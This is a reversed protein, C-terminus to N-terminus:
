TWSTRRWERVGQLFFGFHNVSQVTLSIILIQYFNYYKPPVQRSCVYISIGPTSAFSCRTLILWHWPQWFPPSIKTSSSNSRPNLSTAIQVLPAECVNGNKPKQLSLQVKDIVVITVCANVGSISSGSALNWQHCTAVHASSEITVKFRQHACNVRCNWGQLNLIRVLDDLMSVQVIFSLDPRFVLIIQQLFMVSALGLVIVSFKIKAYPHFTSLGATEWIEICHSGQMWIIRFCRLSGDETCHAARNTAIAHGRHGAKFDFPRNRLFWKRWTTCSSIVQVHLSNWNIRTSELKNKLGSGFMCPCFHQISLCKLSLLNRPLCPLMPCRSLVTRHIKDIFIPRSLVVRQTSTSYENLVRQTSLTSLRKWWQRISQRITRITSPWHFCFLVTVQHASEMGGLVFCTYYLYYIYIYIYLIYIYYLYTCLYIYLKRFSLIRNQFRRAAFFVGSCALFDHPGANKVIYIYIFITLTHVNTPLHIIKQKCYALFLHVYYYYHYYYYHYYYYHYICVYMNYYMHVCIKYLNMITQFSLAEKYLIELKHGPVAPHVIHHRCSAIWPHSCRHKRPSSRCQCSEQPIIHLSTQRSFMRYIETWCSQMAHELRSSKKQKM